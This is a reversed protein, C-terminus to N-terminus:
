RPMEIAAALRDAREAIPGDSGPPGGIMLGLPLGGDVGVPVSEIPEGLATFPIIFRPDGTKMGAPAVDPAAPFILADIDKMASWFRHRAADLARCADRYAVDDIKGGRAVAEQLARTVLGEPAAALDPHARAVEYEIVTTHWAILDAFPIPTARREVHMGASALQNTATHISWTVASSALERSPDTVFVIQLHADPNPPVEPPRRYPPMLWGAGMTADAVGHG